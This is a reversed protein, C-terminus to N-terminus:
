PAQGLKALRESIERIRSSYESLRKPDSRALDEFYSAYSGIENLMGDITNARGFLGFGFPFETEEKGKQTLEYRGDARKLLSGDRVMEDLLPYVSGPSPRWGWSSKEIEDMIEAGNKPSRSLMNVIWPRLWGRRGSWMKHRWMEKM